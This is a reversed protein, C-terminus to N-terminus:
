TTHMCVRALTDSSVDDHLDDRSRLDAFLKALTMSPQGPRMCARVELARAKGMNNAIVPQLVVATTSIQIQTRGATCQAGGLYCTLHILSNASLGSTLKLYDHLM